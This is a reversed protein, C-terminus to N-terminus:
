MMDYRFLTANRVRDGKVDAMLTNESPMSEIKFVSIKESIVIPSRKWQCHKM